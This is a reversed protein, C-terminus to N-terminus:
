LFGGSRTSRALLVLLYVGGIVGTVTGVPYAIPLLRSGVFDGVLVLIAGILASPILASTSGIVRVAIPGALFAVFAIPGTVSTAVSILCVAVVIIGLRTANVRVGLATATLDGLQLVRLRSALVGLLPALVTFSIALGPVDGWFAGDLSGTLWRMASQVDYMNGRLLMYSILGTFMAAVAIGILVLRTTSLGHNYAAAFIAMSVLVGGIVAVVSVQPGTWGLILIAFVASASAGSTVGIIDPAALGNRLLTQFVIGGLGFSAGVLVAVLARPLRLRGVTFSAGQVQDGFVVRIVDVPSYIRDGISLTALFVAALLAALIVCGILHRRRRGARVRRLSDLASARTTTGAPLLETATV